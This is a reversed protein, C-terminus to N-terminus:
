QAGTSTYFTRNCRFCRAKTTGLLRQLETSDCGAHPQHVTLTNQGGENMPSGWQGFLFVRPKTDEQPQDSMCDEKQVALGTNITSRVVYLESKVPHM